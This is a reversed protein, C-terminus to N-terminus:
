PYVLRIFNGSELMANITREDMELTPYAGGCTGCRRRRRVIFTRSYSVVTTALVTACDPDRTECTCAVEAPEKM